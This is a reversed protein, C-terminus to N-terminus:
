SDSLAKLVANLRIMDHEGVCYRRWTLPASSRRSGEASRSGTAAYIRRSANGATQQGTLAIYAPTPVDRHDGAVPPPYDENTHSVLTNNCNLSEKKLLCGHSTSITM